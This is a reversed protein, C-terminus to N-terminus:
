ANGLGGQVPYPIIKLVDGKGGQVMEDFDQFTIDAIQKFVTFLQLSIM